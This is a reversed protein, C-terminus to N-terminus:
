NLKILIQKCQENLYNLKPVLELTSKENLWDQPAGWFEAKHFLYEPLDEIEAKISKKLADQWLETLDENPEYGSDKIFKRTSITAKQISILAEVLLDRKEPSLETTNIYKMLRSVLEKVSEVLITKGIIDLM